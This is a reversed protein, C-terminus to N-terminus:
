QFQEAPKTGNGKILVNLRDCAIVWLKLHERLLHHRLPTTGTSMQYTKDKANKRKDGTCCFKCIHHGGEEVYFPWIDDANCNDRPTSPLSTFSLAPSHLSSPSSPPSSPSPPDVSLVEFHVFQYTRAENQCQDPTPLDDPGELIHLSQPPLTWLSPAFPNEEKEDDNEAVTTVCQLQLRPSVVVVSPDAQCHLQDWRPSREDEGRTTPASPKSRTKCGTKKAGCAHKCVEPQDQDNLAQLSTTMTIPGQPTPLTAGRLPQQSKAPPIYACCKKNIGEIEFGEIEFGEVELVGGHPYAMEAEVNTRHPAM